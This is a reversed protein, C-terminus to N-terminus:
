TAVSHLATFLPSFYKDIKRILAHRQRVDM